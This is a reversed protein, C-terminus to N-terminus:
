SLCDGGFVSREYWAYSREHPRLWPRLSCFRRQVQVFSTNLKIVVFDISNYNVNAIVSVQVSTARSLAFVFLPPQFM